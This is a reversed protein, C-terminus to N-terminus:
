IKYLNNQITLISHPMVNLNCVEYVYKTFTDNSKFDEIKHISNKM